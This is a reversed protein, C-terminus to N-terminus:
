RGSCWGCAWVSGSGVWVYQDIRCWHLSQNLSYEDGVCKKKKLKKPSSSFLNWFTTAYIKTFFQLSPELCLESTVTELSYSWHDNIMRVSVQLTLASHFDVITLVSITGRFKTSIFFGNPNKCLLRLASAHRTRGILKKQFFPKKKKQFVWNSNSNFKCRRM